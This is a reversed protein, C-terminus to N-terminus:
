RKQSLSRASPCCMAAHFYTDPSLPEERVFQRPDHGVATQGFSLYVVNIAVGCVVPDRVQPIYAPLDISLVQPSGGATIFGAEQPDDLDALPLTAFWISRVDSHRSARLIKATKIAWFLCM